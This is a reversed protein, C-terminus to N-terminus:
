VVEKFPDSLTFVCEWSDTKWIKATRDSGQTALYTGFPDWSCGKVSEKHGNKEENLVALCQPFKEVSWIKATCDASVSAIMAGNPSYEAQLVDFAHGIIANIVRYTEESGGHSKRIRKGVKLLTITNADDAVVIETGSPSYRACNM